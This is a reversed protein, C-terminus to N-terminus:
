RMRTGKDSVARVGPINLASRLSKARSNLPVLVADGIRKTLEPTLEKDLKKEVLSKLLLPLDFVEAHWTVPRSFGAITPVQPVLAEVNVPTVAPEELVAEVEALIVARAEPTPATKALAELAVAEEIVRESALLNMAAELRLLEAQRLQEQEDQYTGIVDGLLKKAKELPGARLEKDDCLGKRTKEAAAKTAKANEIQPDMLADWAKIHQNVEGLMAAAVAFTEDDVVMISAAKIPFVEAARAIQARVDDTALQLNTAM